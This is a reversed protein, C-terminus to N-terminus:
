LTRHPDQTSVEPDLGAEQITGTAGSGLNRTINYDYSFYFCKSSFIQKTARLIKPLFANVNESQDQDLVSETPDPHSAPAGATEEELKEKSTTSSTGAPQMDSEPRDREAGPPIATLGEEAKKELGLGKRSFWQSAFRGFQGRKTFVDEAITSRPRATTAQDGNEPVAPSDPPDTPNQSDVQPKFDAVSVDSDSDSEDAVSAKQKSAAVEIAKAAEEQSTLPLITVDSIVYVPKGFIQAVQRRGTVAVLYSFSFISLLGLSNTLCPKRCPLIAVGVLSATAKSDLM